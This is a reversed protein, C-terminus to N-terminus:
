DKATERRSSEIAKQLIITEGTGDPKKIFRFYLDVKEFVWLHFEFGADLVAQQKLQLNLDCRVSFWSKVEYIIRGVQVDPNYVASEGSQNTYDFTMVLDGVLIDDEEVTKLLVLYLWNEYGQYLSKRGSPWVYQKQGFASARNRSYIEKDQMPNRVGYKKMCTAVCRAKRTEFGCQCNFQDPEGVNRKKVYRYIREATVGHVCTSRIYSNHKGIKVVVECEVINTSHGFVDAIMLKHKRTQSCDRCIPYKVVNTKSPRIKGCDKCKKVM